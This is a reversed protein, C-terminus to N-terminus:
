AIKTVSNETYVLKIQLNLKKLYVRTWPLAKNGLIRICGGSSLGLM